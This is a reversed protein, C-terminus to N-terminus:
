MKIKNAFIRSGFLTMNVPGPTLVEVYQETPCNLECNM